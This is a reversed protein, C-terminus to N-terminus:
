AWEGDDDTYEDKEEDERYRRRQERQRERVSQRAMQEMGMDEEQTRYNERSIAVAEDRSCNEVHMILYYISEMLLAFFLQPEEIPSVKVYQDIDVDRAPGRSFDEGLGDREARTARRCQETLPTRLSGRRLDRVF